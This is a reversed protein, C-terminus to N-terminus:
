KRLRYPTGCYMCRFVRLFLIRLVATARYGLGPIRHALRHMRCGRGLLPTGHCLPCKVTAGALLSAVLCVVFGSLAVVITTAWADRGDLWARVGAYIMWGLCGWMGANFLVAVILPAPTKWRRARQTNEWNPDRLPRELLQIPPREM